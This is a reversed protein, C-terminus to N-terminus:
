QMDGTTQQQTSNRSPKRARRMKNQWRVRVCERCQRGGRAPVYTNEATFEHGRVCHTKAANIAPPSIGRRSNEAHPVAELHKPNVCAPVRCLHDIETGPPIPGVHHEYSWRHAYVRGFRGYGKNNKNAAWLWCGGHDDLKWLAFFRQEEPVREYVRKSHKRSCKRCWQQGRHVLQQTSTAFEAGCDCRCLWGNREWIFARGIVLLGGFREGLLDRM